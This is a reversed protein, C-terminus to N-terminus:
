ITFKVGYRIVRDAAFDIAHALVLETNAEDLRRTLEFTSVPFTVYHPDHPHHDIMVFTHAITSTLESTVGSEKLYQRLAAYARPKEGKWVRTKLEQLPDKSPKMGNIISDLKDTSLTETMDPLLNELKTLAYRYHEDGIFERQNILGNIMIMYHYEYFGGKKVLESLIEKLKMSPERDGKFRFSSAQMLYMTLQFLHNRAAPMGATSALKIVSETCSFYHGLSQSANLCGIRLLMCLVEKLDTKAAENVYFLAAIGKQNEMAQIYSEIFERSTKEGSTLSSTTDNVYKPSWALYEVFRELFDLRNEEPVEELLRQLYELEKPVHINPFRHSFTFLSVPELTKLILSYDKNTKWLDRLFILSEDINSNIVIKKLKDLKQDLVIQFM